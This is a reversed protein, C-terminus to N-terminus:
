VGSASRRRLLLYAVIGIVIVAIIPGIIVGINVGGEEPEPTPTATAPPPTQTATPPPAEAYVAYMSFGSVEATITNNVTDVTSPIEVWKGASQDYYAIVLDEEAIGAPIHGPDYKLTITIPPDCTAGEPGFDYACGIISANAPPPPYGACVLDVTIEDVPEDQADKAVTGSAIHMSLVGDGADYDM